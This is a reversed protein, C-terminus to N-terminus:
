KNTQTSNASQNSGAAARRCKAFQEAGGHKIYYELLLDCDTVEYGYYESCYWRNVAGLAEDLQGRVYEKMSM